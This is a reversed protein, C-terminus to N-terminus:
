FSPAAAMCTNPDLILGRDIGLQWARCHAAFGAETFCQEDLGDTPPGGCWITTALILEAGLGKGQHGDAICVAGPTTYYGAIYTHDAAQHLLLMSDSSPALAYGDHLQQLEEPNWSKDIDGIYDDFHQKLWATPGEAGCLFDELSIQLPAYIL